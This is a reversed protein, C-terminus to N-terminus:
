GGSHILRTSLRHAAAKAQPDRAWGLAGSFRCSHAAVRVAYALARRLPARGVGLRALALAAAGHLADGAGLSDRVRVHPVSIVYATAGRGPQDARVRVEVPDPGHSVVAFRAGHELAWGHADGGGPPVFDASLMAVDVLGMLERTGPKFSGGDLLVPIGALRAARALALALAPVHGDLLLLDAHALARQVLGPDPTWDSPVPAAGGSVVAREGTAATVLVTSVPAPHEPPVTPDIAGPSGPVDSGATVALPDIWEVGATSLEGGLWGTLASHGFPALLRARGGLASVTAAANAAPGGFTLVQSRGVVKENPAPLRTVVQVLDVTLLGACAVLPPNDVPALTAVPWAGSPHPLM